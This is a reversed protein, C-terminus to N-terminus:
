LQVGKAVKLEFQAKNYESISMLYDLQAQLFFQQAQFVEFPKATGLKQREISQQLAQATLEYAEKTISIQEKGIEISTTANSISENLGAKFQETEIEKIKILSNYKKNDGNYAITGFPIKWLLSVNLFQTSNLQNPNPFAVVDMPTLDGSLRGFYGTNAGISLEPFLLGTSYNRKKIHLAKIELEFAKIEPHNALSHDKNEELNNSYDLPMLLSDVSVLKTSVSLNLLKTLKATHEYYSKQANLMEVQLHNKNSKALLVESQYLLGADVQIQIQMVISDSQAVLDKYAVLNLQATLLDYYTKVSELIAKNREAATLLESAQYQLQASKSSYIGKAFDWNANAGIGLWLNNRNVDLFFRGNGNMVAGWLQHTQTGAYIEPLWWERAKAFHAASLQQKEQYEKITLNNAGSLELVKELNIPITEQANVFQCHAILLLCINVIYINIKKM